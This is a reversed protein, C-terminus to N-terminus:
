EAQNDSQRGRFKKLEERHLKSTMELKDHQWQPCGKDWWKLSDDVPLPQDYPIGTEDVPEWTLAFRSPRGSFDGRQTCVIMGAVELEAAARYISPESLGTREILTFGDKLDPVHPCLVLTGNNGGRYQYTLDLLLVRAKLTLLRHNESLYVRHFVSAFSQPKSHMSGKRVVKGKGRTPARSGM